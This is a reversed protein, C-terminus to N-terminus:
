KKPKFNISATISKVGKPFDVPLLFRRTKGPQVLGMGMVQRLRAPSLTESWSGGSLKITAETLKAHMNGPNRVTLEPRRKGKDDKGIGTKVLNIAAKGNPPAVNVICAFNFVVQVGSKGEPMKVPVQNVSFVYSQSTKITPEGIWQVRFVQRAGPALMAQPPFILFEDKAPTSQVEGSENLEFRSVIIEVPLSKAGTNVVTIKSAKSSATSMEMEIPNVSMANAPSVALVALIALVGICLPQLLKRM